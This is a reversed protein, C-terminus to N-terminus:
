ISNPNLIQIVDNIEIATNAYQKLGTAGFTLLLYHMTHYQSFWVDVFNTPWSSAFYHAATHIRFKKYLPV